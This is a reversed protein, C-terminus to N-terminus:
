ADQMYKKMAAFISEIQENSAEASIHIQLNVNLPMMPSKAEGNQGNKGADSRYRTASRTISAATNASTNRRERSVAPAGSASGPEGSAILMYTSAKNKASGEGLNQSMFWNIVTQRDSDGPPAIARLSQPYVGSVLEEVAEAYGEDQRWKKAVETARGEDTLVGVRKLEALYQRSAAPQVSLKAGLMDATFTSNPSSKLLDRMGWWVRAPIQPFSSADPM